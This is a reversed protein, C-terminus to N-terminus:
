LTPITMAHQRRVVIFVDPAESLARGTREVPNVAMNPQNTTALPTLTLAVESSQDALGSSTSVCDELARSLGFEPRAEDAEATIEFHGAREVKM